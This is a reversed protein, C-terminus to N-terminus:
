ECILIQIVKQDVTPTTQPLVAGFKSKIIVIPSARVFKTKKKIIKLIQIQIKHRLLFQDLIVINLGSIQNFGLNYTYITHYCLM